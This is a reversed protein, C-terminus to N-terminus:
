GNGDPCPDWNFNYINTKYHNVISHQFYYRSQKPKAPKILKTENTSTVTVLTQTPQVLPQVKFFVSLGVRGQFTLDALICNGAANITSSEFELFVKARKM